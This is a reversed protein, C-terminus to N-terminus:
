FGKMSLFAALEASQEPTLFHSFKLGGEEKFAEVRVGGNEESFYVTQSDGKFKVFM